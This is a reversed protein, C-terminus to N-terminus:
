IWHSEVYDTKLLEDDSVQNITAGSYIAKIEEISRESFIMIDRTKFARNNRIGTKLEKHYNLILYNNM